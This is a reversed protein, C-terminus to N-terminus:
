SKGLHLGRELLSGHQPNLFAAASYLQSLSAQLVRAWELCWHQQAYDARIMVAQTEQYGIAMASLWTTFTLELFFIVLIDM